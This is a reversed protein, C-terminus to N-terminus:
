YNSDIGCFEVFFPPCVENYLLSGREAVDGDENKVLPGVALKYGDIDVMSTEDEKPVTKGVGKTSHYGIPPRDMYKDKLVPYMNGCAVQALVHHTSGM